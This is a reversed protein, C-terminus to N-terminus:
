IAGMGVSLLAAGVGCCVMSSEAGPEADDLDEAAYPWAQAFQTLAFHLHIGRSLPFHSRHTITNWVRHHNWHPKMAYHVRSSVRTYL